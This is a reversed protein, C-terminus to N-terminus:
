CVFRLKIKYASKKILVDLFSLSLSLKKTNSKSNYICTIHTAADITDAKLLRINNNNV